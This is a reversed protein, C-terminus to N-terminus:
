WVGDVHGRGNGVDDGCGGESGGAVCNEGDYEYNSVRGQAILAYDGSQMACLSHPPTVAWGATRDALGCCHRLAVFM